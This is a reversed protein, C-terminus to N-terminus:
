KLNLISEHAEIQTDMYHKIYDWADMSYVQIRM